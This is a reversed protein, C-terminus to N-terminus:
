QRRYKEVLAEFRSDDRIPDLRPDPLLGEISWFNPVSLYADLEEIAADTDGAAAFIRVAYLQYAPGDWTSLQEMGERAMRIASEPEGLYALVEGLASHLRPDEPTTVLAEELQARAARFQPEAMDPDGSFQYTVGYLSTKPIYANYQIIADVEGGLDDLYDLATDYDREYFAATWGALQQQYGLEM